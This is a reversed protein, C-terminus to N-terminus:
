GRGGVAGAAPRGQAAATREGPRAPPERRRGGRSRSGRQPHGPIHPAAGSAHRQVAPGPAARHRGRAGRLPGRLAPCLAAAGDAGERARVPSDRDGPQPGPRRPQDVPRLHVPLPPGPGGGLSHARPLDARRVAGADAGERPRHARALAAVRRRALRARTAGGGRVGAGTRGDAGADRALITSHVDRPLLGSVTPVAVGAAIRRKLGAVRVMFFEDLNSAFIALFRARELLPVRRRDKALDLVRNNFALWSLERDLFRNTPLDSRLDGAGNGSTDPVSGLTSEPVEVAVEPPNM